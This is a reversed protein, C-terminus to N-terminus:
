GAPSRDSGGQTLHPPFIRLAARQYLKLRRDVFPGVRCRRQLRCRAAELPALGAEQESWALALEEGSESEHALLWQLVEAAGAPPLTELLGDPDGNADRVADAHQALAAAARELADPLSM